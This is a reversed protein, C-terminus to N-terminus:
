NGNSKGTIIFFLHRLIGFLIIAAFIFFLIQVNTIITLVLAIILMGFLFVKEKIKRDKLNPLASYKIRSVM